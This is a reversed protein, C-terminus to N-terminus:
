AIQALVPRRRRRLAMGMGFFGLLMLGWTAPEPLPATGFNFTGSYTGLVNSTNTATYSLTHQGAPVGGGSLTIVGNGGPQCCAWQEPAGSLSTLTFLGAVGDLLINSFNINGAGGPLLSTTSLQGSFLAPASGGVYFIFSDNNTAGAAVQGILGGSTPPTYVVPSTPPVTVVIAAEAATTVGLLAAAGAAALLLKRM